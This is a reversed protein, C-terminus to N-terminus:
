DNINYFNITRTKGPTGSTRALAKRSVMTNILSSKGVNSRGALAIEPFGKEPYQSPVAAVADLDVKRIIM